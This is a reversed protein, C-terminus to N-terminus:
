DCTRAFARPPRHTGLEALLYYSRRDNLRYLEPAFAVALGKCCEGLLTRRTEEGVLEEVAPGCSALLREAQELMDFVWETTGAEAGGCRLRAGRRRAEEGWSALRKNWERRFQEQNEVALKTLYGSLRNRRRQGAKSM